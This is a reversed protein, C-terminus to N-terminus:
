QSDTVAPADSQRVAYYEKAWKVKVRERREPDYWALFDRALDEVNVVGDLQAVLRVIANVWANGPETQLVRRFRVESLLPRDEGVASDNGEPFRKWGAKQMVRVRGDHQRVHALVRALDLAGEDDREPLVRLLALATPEAATEARTRARRLRARAGASRRESLREHWAVIASRRAPVSEAENSERAQTMPTTV